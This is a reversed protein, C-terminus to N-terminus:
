LSLTDSSVHIVGSVVPSAPTLNSSDEWDGSKNYVIRALFAMEGVADVIGGEEEVIVTLNWELLGKEPEAHFCTGNGGVFFMADLYPKDGTNGAYGGSSTGSVKFVVGLGPNQAVAGCKIGTITFGYGSSFMKEPPTEITGSNAIMKEGKVAIAHLGPFRDPRCKAPDIEMLEFGWPSVYAFLFGKVDTEGKNFIFSSYGNNCADACADDIHMYAVSVDKAHKGIAQRARQLHFQYNYSDSLARFPASLADLPVQNPSKTRKGGCLRAGVVWVALPIVVLFLPPFLLSLLAAIGLRKLTLFEPPNIM